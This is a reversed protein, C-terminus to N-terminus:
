TSEIILSTKNRVNEKIITSSIGLTRPLYIVECYKSLYDFKHLWDDGIFFADIQYKQIDHVKQEWSSEPIVLNVGKISSVIELREEFPVSSYKGKISNFEDTSIGVIVNEGYSSIRNLLRLHGIHFLDFTGYTIVNKYKM